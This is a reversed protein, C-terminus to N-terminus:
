RKRETEDLAARLGKALDVSRGLGWYHLFM